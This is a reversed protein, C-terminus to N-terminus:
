QKLNKKFWIVYEKLGQSLKIKSNWRMKKLKNNNFIQKIPDGKKQINNFKPKKKLDFLNFIKKLM